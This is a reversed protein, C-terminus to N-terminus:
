QACPAGYQACRAGRKCCPRLPPVLPHSLGLRLYPRLPAAQVSPLPCSPLGRSSYLGEKTSSCSLPTEQMAACPDLTVGLVPVAETVCEKAFTLSNVAGFECMRSGSDEGVSGTASDPSLSDTHTDRFRKSLVIRCTLTLTERSCLKVFNFSFRSRKAPASISTRAESAVVYVRAVYMAPHVHASNTRQITSHATHAFVDVNLDLGSTAANM